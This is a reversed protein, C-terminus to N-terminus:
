RVQSSTAASGRAIPLWRGDDRWSQPEFGDVPARPDVGPEEAAPPPPEDGRGPIRAFPPKRPKRNSRGAPLTRASSPDGEGADRVDSGAVSGDGGWGNGQRTILDRADDLRATLDGNLSEEEVLRNEIARNDSELKTVKTRLQQNEYELHSVSTKLSGVTTRRDLFSSPQSCGACAAAASLFLVTKRSHGTLM